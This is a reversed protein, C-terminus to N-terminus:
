VYVWIGSRCSRVKDLALASNYPQLVTDGKEAPAVITSCIYNRPFLDTRLCELLRSGLGSGTGCALSHVLCVDLVEDTAEAERRAHDLATELISGEERAYALGLLLSCDVSWDTSLSM